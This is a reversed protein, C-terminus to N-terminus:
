ALTENYAFVAPLLASIGFSGHQIDAASSTAAMLRFFSEGDLHDVRHQRPDLLRLHRAM